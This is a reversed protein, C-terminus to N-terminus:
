IWGAEVRANIVEERSRERDRWARAGNEATAAETLWRVVGQARKMERECVEELASMGLWRAERKLTRLGAQLAFLPAPSLRLLDLTSPDVDPTSPDVPVFSPPRPLSLSPPLTASRLFVLIAAYLTLASPATGDPLPSFPLSFSSALPVDTRNLYIALTRDSFSVVPAVDVLPSSSSSSSYTTASLSLSPTGRRSEVKEAQDVQSEADELALKPLRPVEEREDCEELSGEFAALSSRSLGRPVGLVTSRSRDEESDYGEVVVDSPLMAGYDVSHRELATFAAATIPSSPSLAAHAQNRMVSFFPQLLTDDGGADAADDLDFEGASPTLSLSSSTSALSLHSQQVRSALARRAREAPSVSSAPSSPPSSCPVAPLSPPPSPPLEIAGLDPHISQHKGGVSTPSAVLVGQQAAVKPQQVDRTPLSPLAPPPVAFSPPLALFLNTGRNSSAIFPDIPSLPDEAGADGDCGESGDSYGAFPFPSSPCPSPDFHSPTISISDAGDDDVALFPLDLLPKKAAALDAAEDEVIEDGGGTGAKVDTLVGEVFEALKGGSGDERVLTSVTTVYTSNVQGGINLKLLLEDPGYAHLADLTPPSVLLAQFPSPSASPPPVAPPARAPRLPKVSPTPPSHPRPRPGPAVSPPLQKPRPRVAALAPLSQKAPQTSHLALAPPPPARRSPPKSLSPAQGTFANRSDSRPPLDTLKFPPTTPRPPPHRSPKASRTVEAPVPSPSSLSRSEMDRSRRNSRASESSKRGGGRALVPSRLSEVSKESAGSLTRGHGYRRLKEVVEKAAGALKDAATGSTARSRSRSHSRTPTGARNPHTRAPREDLSARGPAGDGFDYAKPSSINIRSESSTASHGPKYGGDSNSSSRRRPSAPPSTSSGASFLRQIAARPPSKIALTDASFRSTLVPYQEAPPPPPPPYNPPSPHATPFRLASKLTTTM